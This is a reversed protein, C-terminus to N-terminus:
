FEGVLNDQSSDVNSLDVNFRKKGHLLDMEIEEEDRPGRTGRGSVLAPSAGTAVALSPASRAKASETSSSKASPTSTAAFAKIRQQPKPKPTSFSTEVDQTASALSRPKKAQPVSVCYSVIM